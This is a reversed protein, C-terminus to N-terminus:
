KLRAKVFADFAEPYNIKYWMFALAIRLTEVGVAKPSMYSVKEIYPIFWDPLDLSELIALDLGGLGNKAYFGVRANNSIKYAIGAGPQGAEELKDRVVAFIDDRYSPIDGIACVGDKVLREANDWWNSVGQMSGLYKLLDYSSKPAAAILQDKIEASHPNGFWDFGLVGGINARAFEAIIRPDSLYRDSIEATIEDFDIGCSNSLMKPVDYGRVATIAIQPIGAYKNDTRDLIKNFDPEGSLPLFVFKNLKLDAASLDAIRYLGTMKEKILRKAIPLFDSSVSLHMYPVSKTAYLECALDFGDPRMECGCACQKSPMDWPLARANVFEVMKCRPCFYHLKLPNIESAGMLYAVLSFAGNGGLRTLEKRDKAEIRIDAMLDYFIISDSQGLTIKEAYFRNLIRIDPMDGYLAYLAEEARKWLDNILDSKRM